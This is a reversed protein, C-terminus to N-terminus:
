LTGWELPVRFFESGGARLVYLWEAGDPTKVYKLRKGEYAAPNAYPVTALPELQRTSLNLAYLRTTSDKQVILKRQGDWVTSGSGTTFTEVGTRWTPTVWANTGINYIYFNASANGRMSLLSFAGLSDPWVINAGGSPAAPMSTLTTWTTATSGTNLDLKYMAASTSGPQYYLFDSSPQIKYVSTTDPTTTWNGTNANNTVATALTLTNGTNSAIRRKQGAGTGSVIVVDSNAYQNTTWSSVTDVLTSTTSSTVSGQPLEVIYTDGLAPAGGFATGVVLTSGDTVSTVFRRQTAYAGSTLRIQLGVMKDAFATTTNADKLITSTSGSTLSGNEIIAPIDAPNITLFTAGYDAALPLVTTITTAVWPACNVGSIVVNTDNLNFVQWSTLAAGHAIIIINRTNDHTITLGRNGSTLTALVQWGHNWTDFRLLSTTSASTATTGYQMAYYIFRTGDYSCDAGHYNVFPCFPLWQWAPTDSGKSYNYQINPM